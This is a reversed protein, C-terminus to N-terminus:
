LREIWIPASWAMRDPSPETVEVYFFHEGTTPLDVTLTQWSDGPVADRRLVERVADGGVTGRYIVVRFTGTYDADSLHLQLSATADRTALAGGMPVRQNAYLRMTLEEDESAYVARQDIADLLADESLRDAVIATRTSHGTGWNAYHNDHPATPATRFGNLLYYDWDSHVRTSREIQGTQANLMLSANERTEGALETGRAILVEFLRVYPRSAEELNALTERVIERDPMTEGAIWRPLETKLPEYDDLGFDNFKKERESNNTIDRLNVDFIQDWNGNLAETNKRFTRPHNLQVMPKDGAYERDLLFDEYLLDFRGREVKALERSGFINVHNGSSNTSWEMAPLAVFTGSSSRTVDWAVLSLQEFQQPIMNAADGAELEGDDATHPSLALFDMGGEDRAYEYAYRAADSPTVGVDVPVLAGTADKRMPKGDDLAAGAANAAYHAHLNGFYVRTEEAHQQAATKGADLSAGSLSWLWLRDFLARYPRAIRPDRYRVYNEFNKFFGSGSWNGSGNVVVRDDVVMLKHHMLQFQEANTQKYRLKGGAAFLRNWAGGAHEARDAANVIVRVRVGREAAKALEKVLDDFVLHHMLVDVSKKARAIEEKLMKLPQSSPSFTAEANSCAGAAEPQKKWIADFHCAFGALLPDGAISRVVITSEENISTGTSSWNNSGTALTLKDVIMFKAHQIGAPTGGGSVFRVNVGAAKLRTSVNDGQQQAADMALRVTVGRQKARLIAEEIARVSFTFNAIDVSREAGDLLAIVRATIPSRGQLFTKDDATCVDCYPETLLVEFTREAGWGDAKGDGGWPDDSDGATSCAAASVALLLAFRRM